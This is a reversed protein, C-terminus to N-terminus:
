LCILQERVHVEVNISSYIKGSKCCTIKIFYDDILKNVVLIFKCTFVALDLLESFFADFTWRLRVFQLQVETEPYTRMISVLGGFTAM